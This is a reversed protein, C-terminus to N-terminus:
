WPAVFWKNSSAKDKSGLKPQYITVLVVVTQKKKAKVQRPFSFHTEAKRKWKTTTSSAFNTHCHQCTESLIKSIHSSLFFISWPLLLSRISLWRIEEARDWTKKTADVHHKFIGPFTENFMKRKWNSLLENFIGFIALNALKQFGSAQPWVTNGSMEIKTRCFNTSLALIWFNLHSM